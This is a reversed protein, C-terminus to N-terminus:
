RGQSVDQLLRIEAGRQPLVDREAALGDKVRGVLVQEVDHDTHERVTRGQRLEVGAEPWRRRESCRPSPLPTGVLRRERAHQIGEGQRGHRLQAVAMSRMSLRSPCARWWGKACARKHKALSSGPRGAPRWASALVPPSQLPSVVTMAAVHGADTGWVVM